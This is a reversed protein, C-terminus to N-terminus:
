IHLPECLPPVRPNMGSEELNIYCQNLLKYSLIYIVIHSSKKSETYAHSLVHQCSILFKLINILMKTKMPSCVGCEGVILLVRKSYKGGTLVGTLFKSRHM